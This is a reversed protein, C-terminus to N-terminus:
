QGREELEALMAKAVRQGSRFAAQAYDRPTKVSPNFKRVLAPFVTDVPMLAYKPYFVMMFLQEASPREISLIQQQAALYKAAGLAQQWVTTPEGYKPWNFPMLQILGTAQTTPNVAAPNWGSELAILTWVDGWAANCAGAILKAIEISMKLPLRGAKSIGAARAPADPVPAITAVTPNMTGMKESQAALRRAREASLMQIPSVGGPWAQASM